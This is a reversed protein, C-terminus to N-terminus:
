TAVIARQGQLWDLERVIGGLRQLLPDLAANPPAALILFFDRAEVLVAPKAGLPLVLTHLPQPDLTHLYRRARRFLQPVIAAYPAAETETLGATALPMGERNSFVCGTVPALACLHGALQALTPRATKELGLLNCLLEHRDRRRMTLGTVHKFLKRGIGPVEALEFISQFKEHDRRYKLIAEARLPGIGPLSQLAQLDAHNIDVVHAGADPGLEVGNWEGERLVRPPAAPAPPAPPRAADASVAAAVPPVTVPPPPPPAVPAAPKFYDPIHKVSDASHAAPLAANFWQVPIAEVVMALDLNVLTAPEAKVWDPPLVPLFERLPFQIQGKKLQELVADRPVDLKAEPFTHANWAPGRLGAPLHQLLAKCPLSLLTDNDEGLIEQVRTFMSVAQEMTLSSTESPPVTPHPIPPTPAPTEPAVSPLPVATNSVAPRARLKRTLLELLNM